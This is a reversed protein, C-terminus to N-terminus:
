CAMFPVRNPYRRSWPAGTHGGVGSRHSERPGPFLRTRAVCYMPCGGFSPMRVAWCCTRSLARRCRRAARAALRLTCRRGCRWAPWRAASTRRLACRRCAWCTTAPAARAAPRGPKADARRCAARTDRCCISSCIGATSCFTLIFACCRQHIGLCFRRTAAFCVPVDIYPLFAHCSHLCVSM